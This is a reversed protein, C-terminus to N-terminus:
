KKYFVLKKPMKVWKRNRAIKLTSGKQQELTFTGDSNKTLKATLDESGYDNIIEINATNEKIIEASTFLWKRGDDSSGFYGAMEGFIEQGPVVVNNDYFNIMLYVNYEDNRFEGRFVNNTQQKCNCTENQAFTPLTFLVACVIAWCARTTISNIKM